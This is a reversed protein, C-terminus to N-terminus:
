KVRCVIATSEPVTFHWSAKIPRYEADYRGICALDKTSYISYTKKAHNPAPGAEDTEKALSAVRKDAEHLAEPMLSPVSVSSPCNSTRSFYCLM